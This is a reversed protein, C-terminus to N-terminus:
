NFFVKRQSGLSAAGTFPAPSEVTTELHLVTGGVAKAAIAKEVLDLETVLAQRQDFGTNSPIHHSPPSEVEREVTAAPKRRSPNYNELSIILPKVIDWYLNTRFAADIVKAQGYLNLCNGIIDLCLPDVFSSDRSDIQERNLANFLSDTENDDGYDEEDEETVTVKEGFFLEWLLLGLHLISSKARGSQRSEEEGLCGTLQGSIYPKIRLGKDPSGDTTEAVYINGTKWPDQLLPSGLLYLLSRAITLALRLIDKKMLKSPAAQTTERDKKADLWNELTLKPPEARTKIRDTGAAADNWSGDYQLQIRLRTRVKCSAKLVSCFTNTPTQRPNQDSPNAWHVIHWKTSETSKTSKIGCVSVLMDIEPEEFGSLHIHASHPPQCPQPTNAFVKAIAKTAECLRQAQQIDAQARKRDEEPDDQAQRSQHYIQTAEVQAIEPEANVIHAAYIRRMTGNFQQVPNAIKRYQAPLTGEAPYKVWKSIEYPFHISTNIIPTQNYPRLITELAQLKPLKQFEDASVDSEHRPIADDVLEDLLVLIDELADSATSFAHDSLDYIAHDKTLVRPLEQIEFRLFTIANDRNARNRDESQRQGPHTVGLEHKPRPPLADVFAPVVAFFLQVDAEALHM